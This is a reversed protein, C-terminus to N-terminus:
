KECLVYWICALHKTLTLTVGSERVMFQFECSHRTGKRVINTDILHSDTSCGGSNSVAPPLALTVSFKTMRGQFSGKREGETTM